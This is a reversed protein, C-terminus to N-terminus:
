SPRGMIMLIHCKRQLIIFTYCKLDASNNYAKLSISVYFKFPHLFRSLFIKMSKLVMSFGLILTKGYARIGDM